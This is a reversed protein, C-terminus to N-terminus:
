PKVVVNIIIIQREGFFVMQLNYNKGLKYNITTICSGLADSKKPKDSYWFSQCVSM